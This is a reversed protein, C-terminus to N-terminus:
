AFSQIQMPLVIKQPSEPLKHGIRNMLLEVAKVGLDEGSQIALAVLPTHNLQLPKHSIAAQSIKVDYDINKVEADIVGHLLELQIKSIANDAVEAVSTNMSVFATPADQHINELFTSYLNKLHDLADPDLNLVEYISQGVWKPNYILGYDKLAKRYGKLRNQVASVKPEGSTLLAIQSHGAKILSETLRYCANEDDFGVFDTEVEPCYRDMMVFPFAIKKLEQYFAWNHQTSRSFLILGDIGQSILKKISIIEEEGEGIEVIQMQIHHSTATKTAGLL